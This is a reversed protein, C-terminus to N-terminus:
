LCDARFVVFATEVRVLVSFQKAEHVLQAVDSAPVAKMVGIGRWALLNVDCKHKTCYKDFSAKTDDNVLVLRLAAISRCTDATIDAKSLSRCCGRFSLIM